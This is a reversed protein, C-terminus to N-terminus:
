QTQRRVNNYEVTFVITHKLPFFRRRSTAEEKKRIKGVHLVPNGNADVGAGNKDLVSCILRNTMRFTTRFATRFVIRSTAHGSM